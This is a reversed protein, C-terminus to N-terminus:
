GKAGAYDRQMLEIHYNAHGVPIALLALVTVFNGSANGRRHLGEVPMARMLALTARRVTEWEDLLDPLARADFEGHPNWATQDFSPLPAPDARAFATARYSFVRETDTLHGVIERISWKDPAYRYRSQAESFQGFAQRMGGIQQEGIAILDGAPVRSIYTAYYPMYDQPQPRESIVNPM